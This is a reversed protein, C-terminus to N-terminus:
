RKEEVFITYDRIYDCEDYFDSALVMLVCEQSFDLMDHWIMPGIYLGIDPRYLTIREQKKGDSVAIECCGSTCVLIQQLTKHAHSGRAVGSQTGFIYYVRKITFPVNKNSELSILQGREDGIVELSLAKILSLINGWRFVCKEFVM